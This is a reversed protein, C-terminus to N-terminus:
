RKHNHPIHETNQLLRVILIGALSRPMAPFLFSSYTYLSMETTSLLRIKKLDVEELKVYSVFSRDFPSKTHKFLLPM